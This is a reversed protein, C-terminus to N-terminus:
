LTRKIGRPVLECTALALGPQRAAETRTFTGHTKDTNFTGPPGAGNRRTRPPPRADSHRTQPVSLTKRCPSGQETILVAAIRKTAATARAATTILAHLVYLKAPVHLCASPARVPCTESSAIAPPHTRWTQTFTHVRRLVDTDWSHTTRPRIAALKSRIFTHLTHHADTYTVHM